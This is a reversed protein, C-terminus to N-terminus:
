EQSDEQLLSWFHKYVSSVFPLEPLKKGNVRMLDNAVAVNNSAYDSNTSDLTPFKYYRQSFHTLITRYANMQEGAEIAEFACSHKKYIADSLLSNDFTCEHILVTCDRGAKILNHCPRTDGSFVVKWGTQHTLVIGYAEPCTHNVPVSIMSELGLPKLIRETFNRDAGEKSVLNEVPFFDFNIKSDSACCSYEILANRLKKQGIILLKDNTYEARKELFRATGMNHDAHLHSFWICKLNKLVKIAEEKGLARFLQAITGEGCDLLVSGKDFLNILIGTVNRYKSPVSSGTGLFVIEFDRNSLKDIIGRQQHTENSYNLLHHEKKDLFEKCAEVIQPYNLKFNSLTYGPDITGFSSSDKSDIGKIRLPRLNYKLLSEGRIINLDSFTNSIENIRQQRNEIKNTELDITFLEKDVMGFEIISASSSTFFTAPKTSVENLYIHDCNKDFRRMFEKYRESTLIKHPTIHVIIGAKGYYKDFQKHTLLSNLYFENPCNIILVNLGPIPPSIFDDPKYTVGNIVVDEGKCLKGRLPGFIGCQSAKEADFKGPIDSTKCVFCLSFDTLTPLSSKFAERTLIDEQKNEAEGMLQVNFKKKYSYIYNEVAKKQKKKNPGKNDKKNVKNKQNNNNDIGEMITKLSNLIESNKPSIVPGNSDKLTFLSGYDCQMLLDNNKTIIDSKLLIGTVTLHEDELFKYEEEYQHDMMQNLCLRFKEPCRIFSRLTTLYHWLNPPGHLNVKLNQDFNNQGSNNAPSQQESVGLITGPLGGLYSPSIRSIFIHELGSYIKIKHESSFRNLNESVNFLYKKGNCFFLISADGEIGPTQLIQFYTHM